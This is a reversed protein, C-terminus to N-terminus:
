DVSIIMLQVRMKQAQSSGRPKYTCSVHVCVCCVSVQIYM